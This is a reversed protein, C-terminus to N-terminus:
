PRVPPNLTFFTLNETFHMRIMKLLIFRVLINEARSRSIGALRTFKSITISSNKELFDLLLREPDTFKLLVGRPVNELRWVRMLIRNVVFNQDHVRHYALWRGDNQKAFHPREASKLIIVELNNKKDLNWDKV